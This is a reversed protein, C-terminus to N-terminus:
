NEEYGLQKLLDDVSTASKFNKGKALDQDMKDYRKIADKSLKVPSPESYVDVRLTGSSFRHMIVRMAEQLSSFGQSLAMQYASDRLDTSVPIQVVTRSM